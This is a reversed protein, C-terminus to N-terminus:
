AYEKAAFVYVADRVGVNDSVSVIEFTRKFTRSSAQAIDAADLNLSVLYEERIVCQEGPREDLREVIRNFSDAEM